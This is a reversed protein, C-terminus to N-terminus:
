QYPGVMTLEERGVVRDGAKFELTTRTKGFDLVRKPFKIFVDARIAKGQALLVPNTATVVEFGQARFTEPFEMRIALDTHSVNTMDFRMHNIILAGAAPDKVEQYPAGGSRLSVIDVDKRTVLVAGLGGWLVGVLGLYVFPRPRAWRKPVGALGAETDYRILGLPKGIRAMVDDCADVCATCAICEM